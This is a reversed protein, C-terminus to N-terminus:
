EGRESIDYYKTNFITYRTPYITAIHSLADSIGDNIAKGIGGNHNNYPTINSVVIHTDGYKVSQKLQKNFMRITKKYYHKKMLIHLRTQKTNIDTTLKVNM